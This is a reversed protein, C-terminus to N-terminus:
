FCAYALPGRQANPGFIQESLGSAYAPVWFSATVLMAVISSVIPFVLLEKDARLVAASAKVLQWSNSLRPFM